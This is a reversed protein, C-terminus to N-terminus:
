IVHTDLGLTELVRHTDVLTGVIRRIPLPSLKLLTPTMRIGELIARQPEKFVDIVEIEFRGSLHRECLTTLNARAQNSNMTDDAVFLRFKYISRRSM